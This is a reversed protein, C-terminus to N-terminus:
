EVGETIGKWADTRFPSAPLGAQNYLNCFPNSAWAYRVAMPNKVKSSSVVITEGDIKAIAWYFKKDAGAIAFGKLKRSGKAKLSGNIHDFTLRVKTGEVTMSKYIPGSYVIEKNYVQALANLALRRGVEQKNKPHIDKADGIDITVAMGTNPLALTKLQAERLEAWDDDRPQPQVKQFNALQVFLFPFDGQGWNARWDNIMTPFLTQYQFARGANSEGQYWIAGRIAFPIVPSIMGNYLVTPRNPNTPNSPRPGIEKLSVTKRYKWTGALSIKRGNKNQVFLENPKGWIGGLGVLDLVRVVLINKGAKVLEGPIKYIRPKDPGNMGGIKEGNFWTVDVNDVPGLHISLDKGQWSQPINIGKRFWVIGDYKKMGANEWYTPLNMTKWQSTNLDPEQWAKGNTQVATDKEELAQFWEANANIYNKLLDKDSTTSNEINEVADVFAPMKKLSPGSTWAEAVTGGWSTHLLGIPINLNKNLHRGFFYATSSFEPITAPTCVQWGKSPVRSKPKISMTHDVHFLRINPYNAEAIEKEFNDIRGGGALPMEMNSQGSCIWVEGVMVNNLTITDKGSVTLTYPGGVTLSDLEVKWTSDSSVKVTKQQNAIEVTIRGGPDATGWVPNRMEQQLVMNNSFLATLEINTAPGSFFSCSTVVALITLLCFIACKRGYM